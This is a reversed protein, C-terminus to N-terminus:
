LYNMEKELGSFADKISPKLTYEIDNQYAMEKSPDKEIEEALCILQIVLAKTRQILDMQSEIWVIHAELPYILSTKLKKAM